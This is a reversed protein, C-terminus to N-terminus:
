TNVNLNFTNYVCCNKHVIGEITGFRATITHLISVTYIDCLICVFDDGDDDDDFALKWKNVAVPRVSVNFNTAM